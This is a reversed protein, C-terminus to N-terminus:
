TMVKKKFPNSLFTFQNCVHKRQRIEIRMITECPLNSLRYSTVHFSIVVPNHLSAGELTEGSRAVSIKQHRGSNRGTTGTKSKVNRSRSGDSKRHISSEECGSSKYNPLIPRNKSNPRAIIVFTFQNCIKHSFNSFNIRNRICTSSFSISNSFNYQEHM